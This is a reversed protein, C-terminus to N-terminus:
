LMQNKFNRLKKPNLLGSINIANAETIPCYKAKKEVINQYPEFGASITPVKM